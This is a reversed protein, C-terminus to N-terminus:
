RRQPAALKRSQCVRQKKIEVLGRPESILLFSAM